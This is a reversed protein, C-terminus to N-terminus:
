VDRMLRVALSQDAPAGRSFENALAFVARGQEPAVIAIAHWLTNSGEHALTPTGRALPDSPNIIWGHAYPRGEGAPPTTMHRSSEPSLLGEGGNLWVRLWRAYDAVSMHAGGAPRMFAPNDGRAPDVSLTVGGMASHHGRPHDGEPAGFGAASLGLPQFVEATLAEEWSQDLSREIAAGILVYGANSYAFEGRAGGLAKALTSAAFAARQERLPRRDAHGAILVERTILERDLLGSRHNMLDDATVAALSPDIAAGAFLDALTADRKMRGQDVLRAYLAATMAKTNSGLHWRDALTAPETQGLMRVGRVGSWELGHRGVAAAAMAPPGNEAFAADLWADRDAVRAAALNPAVLPTAALAGLVARRPITM